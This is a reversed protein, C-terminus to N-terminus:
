SIHRYPRSFLFFVLPNVTNANSLCLSFFSYHTPSFSSFILLLQIPLYCSIQLSYFIFLIIVYRNAVLPLLPIRQHPKLQHRNNGCIIKNPVWRFFLFSKELRKILSLLSVGGFAGGAPMSNPWASSPSSMSAGGMGIKQQNKGDNPNWQHDKRYSFSFLLCILFYSTM